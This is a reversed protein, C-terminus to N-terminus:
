KLTMCHVLLLLLCGLGHIINETSHIATTGSTTDAKGWCQNCNDGCFNCATLDRMVKSHYVRVARRRPEYYDFVQILAPQVRAVRYERVLPIHVCKETKGLSDLYLAIRGPTLEVRKVLDSTEVGSQRLKFGSLVQVDLLAMGTQEVSQGDLLKTCVALLIHGMGAEDDSVDVRLGFAEHKQTQSLALSELNYFVNMQLLAFGKGELLIDLQVSTDMDIEKQHRSLYNTSDVKLGTEMPSTKSALKINLNIAESGSFVAYFSLAQLAIITDQTSGFGGLPGRQRSLWKMLEISEVISGQKFLSLLVYAAMEIGASPPQWGDALDGEGSTWYVVGDRNEARGMLENIAPKAKPSNALTLAYAVLSLSYNSSIGNTFEEELFKQANLVGGPYLGLRVTKDELLTVLVYATLSVPGDLGRQLQTHLVRGPETFSGQATQQGALWTFAKSLVSQDVEMFDQAQLFCRLVFATLWTSGSPDMQGFGSFSGDDRLYLMERTYGEKMVALAKQAIEENNHTNKLYQLVYVSPAFHVMNQEGCGVPMQVLSDLGAISLALIDGAVAVHARSTGPVVGSPLTFSIESSLNSRRPPIDLFLTKSFAQQYGEPLVTLKAVTNNQIQSSMVHISFPVEGLVLPRIPFLMGGQGLGKVRLTQKNPVSGGSGSIFEFMQTKEIAVTVESDQKLHSFLLVELIFEEGKILSPPLRVSWTLPNDDAMQQRLLLPLNLTETLIEGPPGQTFATICAEPAWRLTATVLVSPSEQGGVAVAQGRSTVQPYQDLPFVQMYSGSSSSTRHLVLTKEASKFTVQIVITEAEEQIHFQIPIRGDQPLTHSITQVAAQIVEQKEQEGSDERDQHRGRAGSDERDEDRGRAGSDELQRRRAGRLQTVSVHVGGGGGGSISKEGDDVTLSDGDLRSIKAQAVLDLTGEYPTGDANVSQVQIKVTQSPKYVAKNTWVLTSLNNQSLKLTARDTFLLRIDRYGKVVLSFSSKHGTPVASIPPIVIVDTSGGPLTVQAQTLTDGGDGQVATTVTITYPALNAVSLTTPLGIHLERPATIFYTPSLNGWGVATVALLLGGTLWFNAEM